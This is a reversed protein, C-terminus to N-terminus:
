CASWGLNEERSRSGTGATGEGERGEGRRRAATGATGAGEVSCGSLEVLGGRVREGEKVLDEGVGKRALCRSVGTDATGLTGVEGEVVLSRECSDGKVGADM